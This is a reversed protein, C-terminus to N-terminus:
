RPKKMPEGWFALDDAPIRRIIGDHDFRVAILERRPDDPYIGTESYETSVVTGPGRRKPAQEVWKDIVTDGIEFQSLKLKKVLALKRAEFADWESYELTGPPRDAPNMIYPLEYYLFLYRGLEFYTFGGSRATEEIKVFDRDLLEECRAAAQEYTDFRGRFYKPMLEMPAYPNEGQLVVFPV